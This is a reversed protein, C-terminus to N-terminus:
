ETQGDETQAGAPDELAAAKKKWYRLQTERVKDRNKKRWERYYANRAKRAEDATKTM